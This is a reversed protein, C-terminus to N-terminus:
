LLLRAPHLVQHLHVRGPDFVHLDQRTQVQVAPGTAAVGFDERELGVHVGVLTFDSGQTFATASAISGTTSLHPVLPPSTSTEVM